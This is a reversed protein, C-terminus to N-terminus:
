SRWSPFRSSFASCIIRKLFNPWLYTETRYTKTRALADNESAIKPLQGTAFVAMHEGTVLVTLEDRQSELAKAGCRGANWCDIRGGALGRGFPKGDFYKCLSVGGRWHSGSGIRHIRFSKAGAVELALERAASSSTASQEEITVLSICLCLLLLVLVNDYESLFSRFDTKMM